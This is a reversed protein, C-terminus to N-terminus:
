EDEVEHIQSHEVQPATLHTKPTRKYFTIIAYFTVFRFM